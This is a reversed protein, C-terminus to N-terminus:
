YGYTEMKWVSKKNRSLIWSFDTYLGKELSNLKCKRSVNFDSHLIIIDEKKYGYLNSFYGANKKYAKKDFWIKKLQCGPFNKKFYKKVATKATKIDNTSFIYNKESDLIDCWRQAIWAASKALVAWDPFETKLGTCMYFNINNYEWSLVLRTKKNKAKHFQIEILQEKNEPFFSWYEKDYYGSAKIGTLEKQSKKGFYLTVDTKSMGDYYKVIGTDKTSYAEPSQVLKKNGPLNIIVDLNEFYFTDEASEPVTSASTNKLQKKELYTLAYLKKGAKYGTVMNKSLLVMFSNGYEDTFATYDTGEYKSNKEIEKINKINVERGLFLKEFKAVLKKAQKLNIRNDPMSDTFGYSNNTYGILQNGSYIFDLGLTIDDFNESNALFYVSETKGGSNLIKWVGKKRTEKVVPEPMVGEIAYQLNNFPQVGDKVNNVPNIRVISSSQTKVGNETLAKYTVQGYKCKFSKSYSGPITVLNKGDETSLGYRIIGGDEDATFFQYCMFNGLLPDSTQGQGLTFDDANGDGDYDKVKLDFGEQPYYIKNNIGFDLQYADYKVNDKYTQIEFKGCYMGNELDKKDPIEKDSVYVVRVDYGNILRSAVLAEYRSGSETKINKNGTQNKNNETNKIQSEKDKEPIKGNDKINAKDTGYANTLCSVGAAAILVAAFIGIFKGHKKFNLVNVVRRRTDTEGFSLFGAGTKRQNTAFGLLSMSYSKRVNIDVNRLVYEDCSMEMDRVMLFYSIWVLPNFWYICAILFAAPKIIYDRRKIHYKEHELIYEKEEKGLRFPIYIKPNFIGAVFPSPINECEYINGNLRVARELHKKMCYVMYFNWSLIFMMFIIWIYAGYKIVPNLKIKSKNKTNIDKTDKNKTNTYETNTKDKKIGTDGLIDTFGQGNKIANGNNYKSGGPVEPVVTQPLSGNLANDILASSPEEKDKYVNSGTKNYMEMTVVNTFDTGTINFLSVPSSVAFPCILRIFVIGWLIYSYKKPFKLMLARVALVAIVVPCATIGMNLIKAFLQYLM